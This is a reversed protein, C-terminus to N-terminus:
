NLARERQSPSMAATRLEFDLRDLRTQMAIAEAESATELWALLFARHQLVRDGVALIAAKLELSIM